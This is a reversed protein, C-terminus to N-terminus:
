TRRTEGGGHKASRTSLSHDAKCQVSAREVVHPEDAVVLQSVPRGGVADIVMRAGDYGMKFHPMAVTTLPPETLAAIPHDEMTIVSIPDPVGVGVERLARLAGLASMLNAVFLASPLDGTARNFIQMAAQYGGPETYMGEAVWREDLRLGHSALGLLFGRERRRATDTSLAGSIHGIRRHGRSVLYDVALRSAQEDDVVVAGPIGDVRRNIAVIPVVQDAHPMVFSDAVSAFAVLLGDVRGELVLREFQTHWDSSDRAEALFVLYGNEEAAAHVGHIVASFGLNDLDPLLLAIAGTRRTRLGRAMSNPHYRLRSAAELIRKRTEASVAQAPDSRLVRSVTSPDVGALEAVDKLTPM